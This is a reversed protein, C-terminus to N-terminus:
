FQHKQRITISKQLMKLIDSNNVSTLLTADDAYMNFHFLDSSTHFDNVYVLFFFPGIVSGQPVGSNVKLFKSIKDNFHVYQYRNELYNKCLTHAQHGIGYYALKDLLIKHDITDFAKSLDLLINVPLKDNELKEV